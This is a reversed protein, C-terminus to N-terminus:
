SVESISSLQPDVLATYHGRVRTSFCVTTQSSNNQDCGDTM